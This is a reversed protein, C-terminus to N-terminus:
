SCLNGIQNKTSVLLSNSILPFFLIRNLSKPCGRLSQCKQNDGAECHWVQYRTDEDAYSQDMLHCGESNKLNTEFEPSEVHWTIIHQEERITINEKKAGFCGQVHTHIKNVPNTDNITADKHKYTVLVYRGQVKKGQIEINSGTNKDINKELKEISKKTNYKAMLRATHGRCTLRTETIAPIVKVSRIEKLRHVNAFSEECIEERYEHSVEGAKEENDLDDIIQVSLQLFDETEDIDEMNSEELSKELELAFVSKQVNTGDFRKGRQSDPLIDDQTLLTETKFLENLDKRLENGLKKVEKMDIKQSEKAEITTLCSLMLLAFIYKM